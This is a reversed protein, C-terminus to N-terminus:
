YSEYEDLLDLNKLDIKSLNMHIRPDFLFVTDAKKFQKRKNVTTQM